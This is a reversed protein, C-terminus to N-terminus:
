FTAQWREEAAKQADFFSAPPRQLHIGVKLSEQKIRSIFLKAQYKWMKRPSQRPHFWLLLLPDSRNAIGIQLSHCAMTSPSLRDELEHWIHRGGHESAKVYRKSTRM